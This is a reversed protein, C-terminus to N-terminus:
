NASFPRFLIPSCVGLQSRTSVKVLRKKKIFVHLPERALQVVPYWGGGCDGEVGVSLNLHTM